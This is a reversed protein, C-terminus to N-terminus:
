GTKSKKYHLRIYCNRCLGKANHPSEITRCLTCCDFARAWRGCTAHERAHCSRCLTLLNSMVNNKEWKGRGNGDKHHVVLSEKTSCRTCRHGDRDLVTDRQGAFEREERAMKALLKPQKLHWERKASAIREQNEPSERYAKLYCKKCQGRAM